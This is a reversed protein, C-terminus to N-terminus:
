HKTPSNENFLFEFVREALRGYKVSRSFSHDSQPLTEIHYTTNYGHEQAATRMAHIWHHAREIRTIGQQLDLKQSQRLSTDRANDLEGVYVGTPIRLFCKKKFTLDALRKNPAIGYPFTVQEDPLTYWGAAGIAIKAINSPYAMAYRHVFQGGGSYGFMYLPSHTLATRQRVENLTNHLAHDARLGRKERGLRQFDPFHKHSFRPALLAVNYQEAYESFRLAHRRANRSIGHVSIMLPTSPSLSKPLYLYYRQQLENNTKCRLITSRPLKENKAISDLDILNHMVTVM